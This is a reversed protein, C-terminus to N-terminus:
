EDALFAGHAVLHHLVGVHPGISPRREKLRATQIGFRAARARDAQIGLSDQRRAGQAAPRGGRHGRPLTSRALGRNRHGLSSGPGPARAGTRRGSLPLRQRRVTGRRNRRAASGAASSPCFSFPRPAGSRISPPLVYGLLAQHYSSRASSITRCRCASPHGASTLAIDRAPGPAGARGSMKLLRFNRRARGAGAFRDGGRSRQYLM